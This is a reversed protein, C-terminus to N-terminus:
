GVFLTECTSINGEISGWLCPNVPVLTGMWVVGFALTLLSVVTTQNMLATAVIKRETVSGFFRSVATTRSAAGSSARPATPLVRGAMQHWCSSSPACASTPPAVLRYSACTRADAM